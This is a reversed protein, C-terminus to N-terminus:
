CGVELYLDAQPGQIWSLIKAKILIRTKRMGFLMWTSYIATGQFGLFAPRQWARRGQIAQSWVKYSAPLAAMHPSYYGWEGFQIVPLRLCKLTLVEKRPPKILILKNCSAFLLIQISMKVTLHSVMLMLLFLMGRRLIMMLMMKTMIVFTIYSSLATLEALHCPRLPSPVSSTLNYLHQQHNSIKHHHRHHPPHQQHYQHPPPPNIIIPVNIM